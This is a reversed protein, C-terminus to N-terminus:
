ICLVNKKKNNNNTSAKKNGLEKIFWFRLMKTTKLISIINM